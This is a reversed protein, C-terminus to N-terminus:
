EVENRVQSVAAEVQERVDPDNVDVGADLQASWVIKDDATRRGTVRVGRGGTVPVHRSILVSATVQERVIDVLPGPEQLAVRHRRRGGAADPVERVDLRNDDGDWSASEISSWEVEESGEPGGPLRLGRSTAVVDGGDTSEAKALLREGPRLGEVDRNRRLRM